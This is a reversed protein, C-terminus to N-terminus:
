TKGGRVRQRDPAQPASEVRKGRRTVYNAHLYADASECTLDGRQKERKHM